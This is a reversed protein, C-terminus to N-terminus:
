TAGSDAQGDAVDHLPLSFGITTGSGLTSEASVEGGMSVVLHRVIALGLGTGGAARSRGPDVRYFREFIRPLATEPMGAGNDSVNVSLKDGCAAIDVAIRGAGPSVYRLANEFLNRFIQYVAAADGSGEGDGRVQFDVEAHAPEGDLDRWATWAIEDVRVPRRGPRWAGSEYRSLDLLDDVLRQLRVTNAGIAGAFRAHLDEALGKDTIAEAAARIVTLPTKLEHSANAVFDSRVVELRRIETADVLLAVSGGDESRKTRVDLERDGVTLELRREARTVSEELLNRLTPDRVVSRVAAFPAVEALGLLRRAAPNVIVIRARRDLAMLGEGVQDVLQALEDRQRTATAIRDTLDAKLRNAAAAVRAADTIRPLKLRKGGREEAGGRVLWRQVDGLSWALRKAFRDLILATALSTALVALAALAAPKAAASEVADMRTGFRIAAPEGQWYVRAAGFVYRHGDTASRRRATAATRDLAGEVEPRRRPDSLTDASGQRVDSDAILALAADFVSVRHATASALTSAVSDAPLHQSAQLLEAGLRAARAMRREADTAFASAFAAHAAIWATLTTTAVAGAAWAASVSRLSFRM